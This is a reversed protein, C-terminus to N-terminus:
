QLVQTVKARLEGKSLTIQIEDNPAIKTAEHVVEGASTKVLSYGRGLTKLPSLLDLEHILYQLKQEKERLRHSLEENLSQLVDNLRQKLSTCADYRALDESLQILKNHAREVKLRPSQQHLQISLHDLTHSTSILRNQIAQEVHYTLEKLYQSRGEMNGQPVLSAILSQLSHLKKTGLHRMSHNMQQVLAYLNQNLETTKPFILQAVKTPTHGRADAILESILLNDEHGIGVVTPKPSSALFLCLDRHNFAWLDELSGGGRIMAIVEIRPDQYMRRLATIIKPISDIGQVKVDMMYIPIGPARENASKLFDNYASSGISTILGVGQPLPPLPRSREFLGQAKFEAFTRDYEAQMLGEGTPILYKIYFTAQGSNPRTGVGGNILVEDGPKPLYSMSQADRSWIMASISAEGEKLTLYYHGGRGAKISGVEAKLTIQGFYHQICSRLRSTLEVVGIYNQNQEVTQKGQM